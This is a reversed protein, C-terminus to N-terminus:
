ASTRGTGMTEPDGTNAKELGDFKQLMDEVLEEAARELLKYTHSKVFETIFHM